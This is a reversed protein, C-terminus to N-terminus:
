KTAFRPIGVCLLLSQTLKVEQNLHTSTDELSFCQMKEEGMLKVLPM